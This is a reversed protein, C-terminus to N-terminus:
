RTKHVVYTIVGWVHFDKEKGSVRVVLFEGDVVAIVSNGPRPDLSRDVVLLDGSFIGAGQMSDGNMRMFFTAAPREVMLTNLDLATGEVYDNFM